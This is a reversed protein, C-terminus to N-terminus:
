CAAMARDALFFRNAVDSSWIRKIVCKNSGSVKRKGYVGTVAGSATMTSDLVNGEGKGKGLAGRLGVERLGSRAPVGALMAEARSPLVGERRCFFLLFADETM